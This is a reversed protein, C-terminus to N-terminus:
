PRGSPPIEAAIGLALGQSQVQKVVEQWLSKVADISAQPKVQYKRGLHPSVADPIYIIPRAFGDATANVPQCPFFSFMGEFPEEYTAGIYFRWTAEPIICSDAENRLPANQKEKSYGPRLTVDWYADPVRGYLKQRYTTASHDVWDKVVFVTDVAFQGDVRSGFLVVSGQQLHRLQTPGNRTRQQCGTYHFGGFVFPDTNQLGTYDSMKSHYPRWRRKPKGNEQNKSPYAKSGESQAEWEAWFEIEGSAVTDDGDLYRGGNILYKRTHRSSRNWEAGRKLDPEGGPHLFQVFCLKESIAM